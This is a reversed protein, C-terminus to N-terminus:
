KSGERERYIYKEKEGEIERGKEERKLDVRVEEEKMYESDCM